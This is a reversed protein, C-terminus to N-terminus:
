AYLVEERVAVGYWGRDNSSRWADAENDLIDWLRNWRPDRDGLVTALDGSHKLYDRYANRLDKRSVRTGRAYGSGDRDMIALCTDVFVQMPDNDVLHADRLEAVRTPVAIESAHDEDFWMRTGALLWNLIGSAESQLRQEYGREPSRTPGTSLPLYRRQMGSTDGDFNPRVNSTFVLTQTPVWEVDNERMAHAVQRDGGSLAKLLSVDIAETKVENIFALRCGNFRTKWQSHRQSGKATFDNSDFDAAYDGLVYGLTRVTVGKGGGSQGQLYIFVQPKALIDGILAAGMHKHFFHVLEEDGDFVTLLHREWHPCRANPDFEHPSQKLLYLDDPINRLPQQTHLDIVENSTALLWPNDDFQSPKIALPVRVLKKVAEVTASTASPKATFVVSGVAEAVEELQEPEFVIGNNRVYWSNRAQCWVFKGRMLKEAAGALLLQTAGSEEEDEYPV